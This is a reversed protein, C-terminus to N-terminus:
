PAAAPQAITKTEFLGIGKITLEFGVERKVQCITLIGAQVLTATIKELDETSMDMWYQLLLESRSLKQGPTVYLKQLIVKSMEAATSRGAGMVFEDYNKLLSTTEIIAEKM